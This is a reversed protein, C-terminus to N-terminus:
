PRQATKQMHVTWGAVWADQKRFETVVDYADGGGKKWQSRYVQTQGESKYETAPFILAADSAEVTGSSFGGGNEVYLYDLKKAAGDWYYISEGLYDAHGEGHVTHRDRLFKDGYIWSFCHTDVDKGGPLPGQWCHDALFALPAYPSPADAAFAPTALVLMLLSIPKRM